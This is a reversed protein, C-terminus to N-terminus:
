LAAQSYSVTARPAAASSNEIPTIRNISNQRIMTLVRARIAVQQDLRLERFYGVLSNWFPDEVPEANATGSNPILELISVQLADALRQTVAPGPLLHFHEIRSIYTRPVRAKAAIQGQTMRRSERLQKLREGLAFERSSGGEAGVFSSVVPRKVIVQETPQPAPPVEPQPPATLPQDCRRCLDSATRFQVLNCTRCRIVERAREEGSVGPNSNKLGNPQSASTVTYGSM